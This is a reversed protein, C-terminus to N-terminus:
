EAAPAPDTPPVPDTPETAQMKALEEAYNANLYRSWAMVESPAQLHKSKVFALLQEDTFKGKLAPSAKTLGEVFQQQVQPSIKALREQNFLMYVDDVFSYSPTSTTDFPAISEVFYFTDLPSSDRFVCVPSPQGMNEGVAYSLSSLNHLVRKM